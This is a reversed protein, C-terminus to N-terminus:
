RLEDDILRFKKKEFGLRFQQDKEASHVEGRLGLGVLQPCGYGEEYADREKKHESEDHTWAHARALYVRGEMRGREEGGKGGKRTRKNTRM